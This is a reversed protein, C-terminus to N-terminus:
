RKKGDMNLETLTSNMKLGETLQAGGDVGIHNDSHYSSYLRMM